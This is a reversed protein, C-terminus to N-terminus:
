SIGNHLLTKLIETGNSANELESRQVFIPHIGGIRTGDPGYATEGLRKTSWRIRAFGARTENGFHIEGPRLEPHTRNHNYRVVWLGHQFLCWILDKGEPHIELETRRVFAPLINRMRVGGATFARTGRRKTHYPLREYHDDDLNGVFVEGLKRELHRLNFNKPRMAM